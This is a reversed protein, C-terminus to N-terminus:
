ERVQLEYLEVKQDMYMYVHVHIHVYVYMGIYAHWLDECYRKSEEYM